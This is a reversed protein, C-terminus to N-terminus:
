IEIVAIIVLVTFKFVIVAQLMQLQMEAPLEEPSQAKGPAGQPAPAGM